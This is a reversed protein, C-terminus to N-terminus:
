LCTPRRSGRVPPSRTAVGLSEAVVLTGRRHMTNMPPSGCDKTLCTTPWGCRHRVINDSLADQCTSASLCRAKTDDQAGAFSGVVGRALHTLDKAVSAPESSLIVVTTAYKRGIYVTTQTSSSSPAQQTDAMGASPPRCM